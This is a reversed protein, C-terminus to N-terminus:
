MKLCRELIREFDPQVDLMWCAMGDVTEEGLINVEIADKILDEFSQDFGQLLSDFQQEYESMIDTFDMKYWSMEGVMDIGEYMWGDVMYMQMNMIQSETHGDTTMDMDIDMNMYMEMYQLDYEVEMDSVADISWEEGWSERFTGSMGVVGEMRMSNCDLQADQMNQYIQEGTMGSTSSNSSGSKCAVGSVLMTACLALFLLIRLKM